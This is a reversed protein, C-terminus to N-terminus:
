KLKCNNSFDIGCVGCIIPQVVGDISPADFNVGKNGCDETSCSGEHIIEINM